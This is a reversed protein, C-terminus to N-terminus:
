TEAEKSKNSSFYSEFFGLAAANCDYKETDFDKLTKMFELFAEKQDLYVKEHLTLKQNLFTSFNAAEKMSLIRRSLNGVYSKEFSKIPCDDRWAAFPRSMIGLCLGLQYSKSNIVPTMNDFKQISMLFKFDYKLVVFPLIENRISYEIQSIFLPLLIPDFYYTDSFIQPLVKLLHSQYRKQNKTRDDLLRQFSENIRFAPKIKFKASNPESNFQELLIQKKSHINEHVTRLFSKKLNSIEVLDVSPTSMGPPKIFVIDFGIEEPLQNQILGQFIDDYDENLDLNLKQETEDYDEGNSEGKQPFFNNLTKALLNYDIDEYNEIDLIPLAIIGIDNKIRVFMKKEATKVGYFLNIVDDVSQFAKVKYSDTNKFGPTSAGVGDPDKFLKTKNDFLPPKITKFLSKALAVVKRENPLTSKAIFGEILKENVADLVGQIEFWHKGEFNFHIVVSPASQLLSEIEKIQVRLAVHFAIIIPLQISQAENEGRFFSSKEKETAAVRYNGAIKIKDKGKIFSYVIDGFVYKKDKDKDSTKFNLNRLKKIEDEDRLIEKEILCIDIKNEASIKVPIKYIITEIPNKSEDKNKRVDEIDSSTKLVFRHEDLGYETSNRYIKGIKLVTELSM